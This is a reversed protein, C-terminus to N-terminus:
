RRGGKRRGRKKGRGTKKHETRIESGGDFAHASRASGGGDSAHASRVAGRGDTEGEGAPESSPLRRASIYMSAMILMSIFSVMAYILAVDALYSEDLMRTMVCIASIVMTGIMNISLLRDLIRPGILSRVLMVGVLILLVILASKYLYQYADAVTM